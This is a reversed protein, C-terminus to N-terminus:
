GYRDAEGELEDFHDAFDQQEFGEGLGDSHQGRVFETLDSIETDDLESSSLAIVEYSEGDQKLDWRLDMVTPLGDLYKVMEDETLYSIAAAVDNVPRTLKGAFVYKFGRASM